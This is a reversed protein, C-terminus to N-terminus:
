NNYRQLHLQLSISGISYVSGGIGNIRIKDKSDIYKYGLIYSAFIVNTTAGTDVNFRLIM